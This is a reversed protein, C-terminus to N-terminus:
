IVTVWKRATTLLNNYDGSMSEEMYADIEDAYGARRLAATVASMIVMANGSSGTLQVIVNPHRVETNDEMNM